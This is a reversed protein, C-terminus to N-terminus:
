YSNHTKYFGFMSLKGAKNEFSILATKTEEDWKIEAEPNYINNTLTDGELLRISIRVKGLKRPLKLRVNAKCNAGGGQLNFGFGILDLNDVRISTGIIEAEKDKIRDLDYLVAFEGPNVIKEKVLGLEPDLMDVFNGSHVFPESSECEDMVSTILYNDRRLSIFNKDLPFKLLASIKEKYKEGKETEAGLDAPSERLLVFKGKGFAYEGSEAKEDIEFARLLSELATKDNLKGTNWWSTIGHFPDVGDGVYVLIGGERVYSILASNVDATLPKQFEYSLVLLKYDDLYGPFRTINELQVPRVPLGGKILPLTLGYFLPFAISEYFDLRDGTAVQKELGHEYNAIAKLEVKNVPKYENRRKLVDDPFNRQFMASDSLFVGVQPAENVYEYDETTFTGLMQFVNCLFTRYSDPITKGNESDRPYKAEPNFIRHPWPCIQFRNIKPQMISGILTPVYLDKYDDWTYNPRDDIPDNDFWMTRGTGRVLEQMIGYELFATEFPREKYVGKFVNAERTTGTWVQAKYGDVTPVDTLTGEPSQVKWQSYNLLSHTPVYFRILKNYKVIAYEKLSQSVREVARRYLYAKLRAVKHHADVSEHPPVWDERYYLKYERKLAESYGSSNLYEPEEVHIAEVGADIAVKMKDILYNTYTVSPCMYGLNKHKAGTLKGDRERQCEDWHEKGDWLGTVYDEYNGWAIGTMLHVVYGREKYKKIRDPMGADLGYVIAIDQGLDVYPNLPGAAQYCTLETERKRIYGM